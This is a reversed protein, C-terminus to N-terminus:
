SIKEGGLGTGVLQRNKDPRRLNLRNAGKDSDINRYKQRYKLYFKQRYEKGTINPM